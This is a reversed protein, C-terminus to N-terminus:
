PVCYPATITKVPIEANSPPHTLTQLIQPLTVRRLQRKRAHLHPISCPLTNSNLATSRLAVIILYSERIKTMCSGAPVKCSSSAMEYASTEISRALWHRMPQGPEALCVDVLM